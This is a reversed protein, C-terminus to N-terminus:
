NNSQIKVTWGTLASHATPSWIPNRNRRETLSIGPTRKFILVLPADTLKPPGPAVRLKEPLPARDVKPIGPVPTLQDRDKVLPEWAGDADLSRTEWGPVAILV